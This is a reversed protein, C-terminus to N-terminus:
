RTLGVMLAEGWGSPEPAAYRSVRGIFRQIEDAARMYGGAQRLTEGIRASARAYSPDGLIGGAIRRLTAPLARDRPLMKGAGLQAVRRAVWPQDASQPILLLPVGYYLSESVSNMGGHSIFLAARQLIDLQPVSDRVICNSPIPGLASLPTKRGISVVVQYDSEAFAAMGARYFEAHANFLTGLSIYVLPRDRDLAEYPFPPSDARPLISPGVFKYSANLRSAGPQFAGSTFVINLQGPNNAMDYLGVRRVHYRASIAAAMARIHRIERGSAFRSRMQAPDSLILRPVIVFMSMSCIAPVDLLEAVYRGWVSLQDHIIADPREARLQPLLRELVLQSVELYQEFHKIQNEYAHTPDFPYTEGYSRFTAGTQEVASQFDDLAYYVVREGRRVLERVVPLTPNIHGWGPLSLFLLTAV